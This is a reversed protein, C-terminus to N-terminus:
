VGVAVPVLVEVVTAAEALAEVVMVEAVQAVMELPVEVMDDMARPGVMRELLLEMRAARGGPIAATIEEM